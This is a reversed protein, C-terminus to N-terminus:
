LKSSATAVQAPEAIQLMLKGTNAGVYLGRLMEPAQDVPGKHLTEPVMLPSREDALANLVYGFAEPYRKAYDTVLFGRYALRRTTVLGYNQVGTSEPAAGADNYQSVVGCAVVVGFNKMCLLVGDLTAGGVGDFYLDVLSSVRSAAKAPPASAEADSGGSSSALEQERIHRAAKRVSDAISSGPAKYDVTAHVGVQERLWSCKAEGGAIAIVRWGPTRLAFQCAMVGTAGAAASVVAIRIAGEKAAPAPPM